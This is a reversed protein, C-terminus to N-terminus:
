LDSQKNDFYSDWAHPGGSTNKRGPIKSMITCKEDFLLKTSNKSAQSWNWIYNKSFQKLFQQGCLSKEKLSRGTSCKKIPFTTELWYLNSVGPWPPINISVKWKKEQFKQTNLNVINSFRLTWKLNNLFNQLIAFIDKRSLHLCM